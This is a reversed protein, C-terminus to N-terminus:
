ANYYGRAANKAIVQRRADNRQQEDLGLIALLTECSMQLDILEEALRETKGHQRYLYLENDSEAIESYIHMMQKGPTNYLFKTAPRLESERRDRLETLWEHLHEAVWDYNEGKGILSKELDIAEDLTM